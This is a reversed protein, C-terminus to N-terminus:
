AALRRLTDLTLLATQDVEHFDKVRGDAAKHEISDYALASITTRDIM